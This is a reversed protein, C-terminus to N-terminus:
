TDHFHELVPNGSPALRRFEQACEVRRALFLAIWTPKTRGSKYLRLYRLNLFRFPRVEAIEQRGVFRRVGWFSHGYVGEPAVKLTFCLTLLWAYLLGALAGGAAGIFLSPIDPLGDKVLTICFGLPLGLTAMPVFTPIVAARFVKIAQQM